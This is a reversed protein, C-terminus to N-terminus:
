GREIYKFLAVAACVMVADDSLEIGVAGRVAEAMLEIIQNENTSLDIKSLISQAVRIVKDLRKPPILGSVIESLAVKLGHQRLPPQKDIWNNAREVFSNSRDQHLEFLRTMESKTIGKKAIVDGYTPQIRECCARENVLGQLARFLANPKRPECGMVREYSTVLHGKTDATPDDLNMSVLLYSMNSLDIDQTGLCSAVSDILKKRDETPLNIFSLEGPSFCSDGSYSFRRNGVVFLRISKNESSIFNLKYLKAVISEGNPPKRAAWSVSFDKKEGTKVQYFCFENPLHVEIDCLYDFIIAFDDSGSEMCDLLKEIGWLLEQRFRNKSRSGSMDPQLSM